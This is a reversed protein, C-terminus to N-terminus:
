KRAYIDEYRVIDDEGLYAGTQVEILVVEVKGRNALRHTAGLPVYVSENEPVMRVEDGVTVEATGSVVVWHEARHLHSQLSLVGGPTVTIRKVQFRGGTALSEYSGWPRLVRRHETAEEHGASKLHKVVAGAAAPDGRGTVLVADPTAVVVLDEVGKVAVLPGDSHVYSNRSDLVEVNGRTANGDPGQRAIEWMANWSGLDSWTFEAPVVAATATREMVAYDISLDPCAVLPDSALRLFDLDRAAGSLAAEAAALVEPAHARMEDLLLAAPAAFIGANWFHQGDAVYAEATALDPKERFADVKAGRAGLSAGRRIYGYGTEPGTPTVGFTVIHGQAALTAAHQAAARFAAADPIYHDAPSILLVAGPADREAMLAAVACPLATNRALPELVIQAPHGAQQVHEAVQFRSAEACLILMDEGLPALRDLTERLMTREGALPLFQKPRARRSIPWLRSGSGGSLVVPLIRQDM